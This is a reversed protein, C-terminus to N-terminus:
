NLSFQQVIPQATRNVSRVLLVNTKGPEVTVAQVTLGVQLNIKGDVPTPVRIYAFEKPLTTWTRTDAVNTAAQYATSLAKTGYKVWPNGDLAQEAVYGASAKVATTLLTKTMMAPWENKFDRSVVADMSCITESAFTTGGVTARLQPIYNDHYDLIPFAAGVYSIEDTLLFLPIDIRIQKRSPASGTAFIVYTVKETPTGSAISEAMAYDAAIYKGPSMGLVREFDKRAREVDANDAGLHSFFLGDMFVSFPNVYDAYPLIRRDVQALEASAAAAFKEDQQAREVDYETSAKGDEGELEGAKAQEAAELATELKKQNEAVADKQRQLARNLEVRAGQRDNLCLYDLAKYTNLMVKDYSRGRYVINAQTSVFALTENGVKVKSEEEYRNVIDEAIDFAKLSGDLDGVASLITGQELRWILEDRSGVEKEVRLAVNTAALLGNGAQWAETMKKAQGSYTSCGTFGLLVGLISGVLVVQKIV